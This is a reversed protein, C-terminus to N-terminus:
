RCAEARSGYVVPEWYANARVNDNGMRDKLLRAGVRYRVGPAVDVVLAKYAEGRLRRQMLGRHRLEASNFYQSPILERVVLVHQGAPLRFRNQPELPTSQGDIQTIEAPFVMESVVPQPDTATVYGCGPAAAQRDGGSLAGELTTRGGARAVVLTARGSSHLLATDLAQQPRGGDALPTGNISVIRDGAALGMREGAGGPTVALVPIGGPQPTRTDLVADLDWRVPAQAAAALPALALVLLLAFLHPRSKM